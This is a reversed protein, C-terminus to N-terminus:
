QRTIALEAKKQLVDLEQITRQLDYNPTLSVLNRPHGRRNPDPNCLYSIIRIIGEKVSDLPIDYEVDKLAKQYANIMDPLYQAYSESHHNCPVIKLEDPLHSNLIQNFSVSTIYFTVLGGLMYNDVQYLSEKSGLFDSFFIEPAAYNRDGNFMMPYPCKIDDDFCLSRGLDGIKSEGTFSLVNSPKIDQHSIENSHLQNLGVSVDHLSKLKTSLSNIRASLEVKKSFDFVKRVDGDALEYVIYSVTGNLYYGSLEVDGSDIFFVVKSVRRNQCYESLRKEYNFQETASQIFESRREPPIGPTITIKVYDLVKMFARKGDREVEYCVSFNGGSEGKSKDPAAFKKIVKWDGITKGELDGCAFLKNIDLAMMITISIVGKGFITM